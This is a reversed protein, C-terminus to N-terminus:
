FTKDSMLCCMSGGIGVHCAKTRYFLLMTAVFLESRVDFCANSAFLYYVLKTLECTREM